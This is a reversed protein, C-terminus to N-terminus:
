QTAANYHLQVKAASLVTGYIALEDLGSNNGFRLAQSARASSTLNASSAISGTLTGVTGTQSIEKGDYYMHCGTNLKSGDYTFVAHHWNGDLTSGSPIDFNVELEDTPYNSALFIKFQNTLPFAADLEYGAITGSATLNTFLPGATTVATAKFWAELSFTATSTFQFTASTNTLITSSTNNVAVSTNYMLPTAGAQGYLWPTGAGGYTSNRGNGSSDTATAGSPEGLRWYGLPADALVVISYSLAGFTPFTFGAFLAIRILFALLHLILM